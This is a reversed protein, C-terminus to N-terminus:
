FTPAVIARAPKGFLYGQFVDCGLGLLTDREAVTEVGETVVMMGLESCVNAFSRILHQKTHNSDVGRVLSMDLKVVEPELHTVSTLGAYGAGLDDIALRFGLARLAAVNQTVNEVTELSARETIELVVRGAFPALPSRPDSLEEDHLDIAHLNIFALVEPPLSPIADAVRARVIRGVDSLRGLREAAEILDVPRALSPEDTRVLAEYGVARRQGWGVIPQFAVWLGELAAEFRLELESLVRRPPAISEAVGRQLRALHSLRAARGVADRLAAFDVPKTLYRFAGFNVSDQASDVSPYGTVVVFAVDADRKRVTKLLDIGSGDPLDVDSVIASFKLGELAGIAESISGVCVVEHEDQLIREFARRVLPEDEVILIRSQAM